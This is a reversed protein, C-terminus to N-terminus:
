TSASVTIKEGRCVREFADLVVSKPVAEPPYKAFEPILDRIRDPKVEQELRSFFPANGWFILSRMEGDPPSMALLRSFEDDPDSDRAISLHGAICCFCAAKPSRVSDLVGEDTTRAYYYPFYFTEAPYQKLLDLAEQQDRTLAPKMEKPPFEIVQHEPSTPSLPKM